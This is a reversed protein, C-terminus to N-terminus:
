GRTMELDFMDADGSGGMFPGEWRNDVDATPPRGNGIPPTNQSLEPPSSNSDRFLVPSPNSVSGQLQSPLSSPPEIQLDVAVVTNVMQSTHALRPDSALARRKRVGEHSWDREITGAELSTHLNNSTTITDVASVQSAASTTNLVPSSPVQQHDASTSSIAKRKANPKTAGDGGESSASDHNPPSVLSKRAKEWDQQLPLLPAHM